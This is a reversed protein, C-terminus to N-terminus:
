ASADMAPRRGVRRRKLTALGAIAIAFVALSAPEPVSTQGHQVPGSALNYSINPAMNWDSWNYLNVDLVANDAFTVVVTDGLTTNTVDTNPLSTTCTTSSWTLCDTQNGYFLEYNATINVTGGSFTAVNDGPTSTVGTVSSNGAATFTFAVAVTGTLTGTAGSIPSVQLFPTPSTPSGVTLNLSFPSSQFGAGDDNILPLYGATGTPIATYSGTITTQAHSAAVSAMLAMAAAIYIRIRMMLEECGIQLLCDALQYM